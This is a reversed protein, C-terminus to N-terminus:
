FNFVPNSIVMMDLESCHGRPVIVRWLLSGESWRVTHPAVFTYISVTTYVKCKQTYRGHRCCFQLSNVLNVIVVYRTSILSTGDPYVWMLKNAQTVYHHHSNKEYLFYLDPIWLKEMDNNKLVLTTLNYNYTLRPDHWRVRLYMTVSFDQPPLSVYTLISMISTWQFPMNSKRNQLYLYGTCQEYEKDNTM